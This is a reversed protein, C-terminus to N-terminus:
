RDNEGSANGDHVSREPAFTRGKEFLTRTTGRVKSAFWGSLSSATSSDLQESDVTLSVSSSASWLKSSPCCLKNEGVSRSLKSFVKKSGAFVLRSITDEQSALLTALPSAPLAQFDATKIEFLALNTLNVTELVNKSLQSASCHKNFSWYDGQLFIYLLPRSGKQSLSGYLRCIKLQIETLAMCYKEVSLAVLKGFLMHM